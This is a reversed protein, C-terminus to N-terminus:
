IHILSLRVGGTARRGRACAARAGCRIMQFVGNPVDGAPLDPVLALWARDARLAQFLQVCAAEYRAPPPRARPMGALVTPPLEVAATPEAAPAAAAFPQQVLRPLGGHEGPIARELEDGGHARLAAIPDHEVRMWELATVARSDAPSTVLHRLLEDHQASGLPALLALRAVLRTHLELAHARALLEVTQPALMRRFTKLQLQTCEDAIEHADRAAREAAARTRVVGDAGRVLAGGEGGEEEDSADADVAGNADDPRDWGAPLAGLAGLVLRVVSPASLAGLARM